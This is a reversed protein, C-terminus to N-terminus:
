KNKLFDQNKRSTRNTISSIWLQILVSKLQERFITSNPHLLVLKQLAQEVALLNGECYQTLLIALDASLNITLQNARQLIWQPLAQTSIPWVPIYIGQSQICECWASKQVAKSLKGTSIIILRDPYTNALQKQFLNFIDTDFKAPTNRIDIIKKDSFLDNNQLHESLIATYSQNDGHCTIKSSFGQASVAEIIKNRAEQVLLVEDGSILYIPSLSKKLQIELQKLTIIPM